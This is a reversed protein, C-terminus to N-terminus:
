GHLDGRHPRAVQAPLVHGRVHDLRLPPDRLLGGPLFALRLGGQRLDDLPPHVGEELVPDQHLLGRHHLRLLRDGLHDGLRPQGDRVEDPELDALVGSRPERRGAHGCAPRRSRGAVVGASRSLFYCEIRLLRTTALASWPVCVSGPRRESCAGTSRGARASRVPVPRCPPNGLVPRCRRPPDIVCVAASSHLFPITAGVGIPGKRRTTSFSEPSTNPPPWSPTSGSTTRDIARCITVTTRPPTWTATTTPPPLKKRPASSCCCPM